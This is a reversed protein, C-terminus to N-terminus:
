RSIAQEWCAGQMGIQSYFFCMGAASIIQPVIM